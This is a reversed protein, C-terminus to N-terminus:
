SFDETLVHLEHGAWRLFAFAMPLALFVCGCSHIMEAQPVAKGEGRDSEELMEGTWLSASDCLGSANQKKRMM